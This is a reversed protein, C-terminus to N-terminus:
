PGHGEDRQPFALYWGVEVFPSFLLDITMSPLGVVSVFEHTTKSEVVRFKWGREEIHLEFRVAM